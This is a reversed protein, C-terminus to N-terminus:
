LTRENDKNIDVYDTTINSQENKINIQTKHGKIKTM